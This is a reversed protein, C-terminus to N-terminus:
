VKKKHILHITRACFDHFGQKRSTWGIMFYGVAFFLGSVISAFYRGTLRWFKVRQLQDDYIKIRCMQMGVTGQQKSSQLGCFYIWCFVIDFPILVAKFEQESEFFLYWEEPIFSMLVFGILTLTGFDIIGAFLRWLFGAYRQKRSLNKYKKKKILLYTILGPGFLFGFIILIIILTEM